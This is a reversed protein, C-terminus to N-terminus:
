DRRKFVEGAHRRALLRPGRGGASAEYRLGLGYPQPTVKRLEGNPTATERPAPGMQILIRDATDRSVQQTPQADCRLVLGSVGVAALGFTSQQLFSRRTSDFM